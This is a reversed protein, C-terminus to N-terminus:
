NRVIFPLYLDQWITFGEVAGIDCRGNQPRPTGRQDIVIPQGDADTCGAPDGADLVPSDSAPLHTEGTGGNDAMLGLKTDLTIVNTNSGSLDCAPDLGNSGLTGILNYGGSVLDGHCDLGDNTLPTLDINNAIVSNKARLIGSNRISIPNGVFEFDIYVGGGAGGGTGDADATNNTITVNALDLEGDPDVYIGGGHFNASNGSITVNTLAIPTNSVEGVFIGGGSGGATNGSITVNTLSFAGDTGSVYIGAGSSGSENGDITTNSIAVKAEGSISVGRNPHYYIGSEKVIVESLGSAQLGTLGNGTIFVHDLEAKGFDTSLGHFNNQYIASQVMTLQGYNRIGTSNGTILSSYIAFEGENVLGDSLNDLIISDSLGATGTNVVGRAVNQSVLSDNLGLTGSNYVATNASGGDENNEIQAYNAVLIGSNALGGGATSKNAVLRVYNMTVVGGENWVGGGWGSVNGHRITMDVLAAYVDPAIHFVRDDSSELTGAAQVTTSGIGQGRILVDKNILIGKETHIEDLVDIFDGDNAANIALQITIYDCGSSCVTFTQAEAVRYPIVLCCLVFCCGLIIKKALNRGSFVSPVRKIM